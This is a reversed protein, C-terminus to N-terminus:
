YNLKERREREHLGIDNGIFHFHKQKIFGLQKERSFKKTQTEFKLYSECQTVFLEPRERERQTM